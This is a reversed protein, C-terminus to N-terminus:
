KMCSTEHAFPEVIMLSKSTVLSLIFHLMAHLDLHGTYFEFKFFTFHQMRAISSGLTPPSINNFHTLNALLEQIGNLSANFGLAPHLFHNNGQTESTDSVQSIINVAM